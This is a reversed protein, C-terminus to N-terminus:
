LHYPSSPPDPPPFTPLDLPFSALSPGLRSQPISHSPPLITTTTTTLYTSPLLLLFLLFICDLHFTMTHFPFLYLSSSTHLSHLSHILHFIFAISLLLLIFNLVNVVLINIISILCTVCCSLSM